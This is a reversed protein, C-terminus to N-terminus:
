NIDLDNLITYLDGPDSNDINPVNSGKKDWPISIFNKPEEGKYDSAINLTICDVYFQPTASIFVLEDPDTKTSDTIETRLYYEGATVNAPITLKHIGGNKQIITSCWKDGVTAVQNILFWVQGEGHTSRKSLFYSCPGVIHKKTIPSKQWADYILNISSGANVAYPVTPGDMNSTRCRLDLSSMDTVPYAPNNSLPPLKCSAEVKSPNEEYIGKLYAQAYTDSVLVAALGCFLVFKNYM